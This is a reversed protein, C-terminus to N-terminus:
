KRAPILACILAAVTESDARLADNLDKVPAGDARTLGDLHFAEVSAARAAHLQAAWRSLAARGADDVHPIARVHRGSFAPLAEAPINQGAGLMAVAAADDERGAAHIVHHAALLDPGGEVLLVAGAGRVSPLGIPHAGHSGQLTWAKPTGDLHKWPKGNLRRAQASLGDTDTIVWALEGHLTCFRLVGRWTALALGEIPIGRLDALQALESRTGDRMTPLSPPPKPATLIPVPACRRAVPEPASDLKGALWRMADGISVGRAAAALGICDHTSGTSYDRLLLEGSQGVWLACSPHTDPRFPSRFKVGPREPLDVGLLEAVGRVDFASKIERVLDRREKM